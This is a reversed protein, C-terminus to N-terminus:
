RSGILPIPGLDASLSIRSCPLRPSTTSCRRAFYTTTRVRPEDVLLTCLAASFAAAAPSSDSGSSTISSWGAGVDSNSIGSLTSASPVSASISTFCESSSSFLALRFALGFRAHLALSLRFFASLTCVVFHLRLWLRFPGLSFTFNLNGFMPWPFLGLLQKFGWVHQGCILKLHTM